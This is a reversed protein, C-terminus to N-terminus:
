GHVEGDNYNFEFEKQGNKFYGIEQGHKKGDVYGCESKKQGNDYYEIIIGNPNGVNIDSM